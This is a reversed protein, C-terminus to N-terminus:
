KLTAKKREACKKAREIAQIRQEETLPKRTERRHKLYAEKEEPTMNARKNAIRERAKERRDEDPMATREEIGQERRKNEAWKRQYERKEIIRKEKQEENLNNINTTKNNANIERCCWRLNNLDNNLKNRDIHDIEPLNDPNPIFQNALLRHLRINKSIGNKTFHFRAYADDTLHPKMMKKHLCSWIEGKKNIKYFGEYDIVDVFENDNLYKEIVSEYDM